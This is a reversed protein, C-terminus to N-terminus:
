EVRIQRWLAGQGSTRNRYVGQRVSENQPSCLKAGFRFNDNSTKLLHCHHTLRDLLATTMNADVFSSGNHRWRNSGSPSHDM